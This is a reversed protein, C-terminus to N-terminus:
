LFDNKITQKLGEQITYKSEFKLNDLKETNIISNACFKKVRIASISFEKKTLKSLIDFFYGIIIGFYKPLRLSPYKIDLEKKILNILGNMTLHPKDAYNFIRIGNRKPETLYKLFEALNRVYAMSKKNKGNGIIAFTGKSVQNILNYVNGRNGEGFVVTPRVIDLYRKNKRDECWKILLKEAELKSKGYHNFPNCNSKENPNNINMGYVAVSSTFIIHNIGNENAAKIVNESGVVNTDYYRSSPSINDKHEAALLIVIDTNELSKKLQTYNRVDAKIYKSKKLNNENIDINITSNKPLQNILNTGIFGSGGIIAIKKEKM